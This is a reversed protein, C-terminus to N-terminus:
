HRCPMPYLTLALGRRVARIPDGVRCGTLTELPVAREGYAGDLTASVVIGRNFLITDEPSFGTITAQVDDGPRIQPAKYLAVRAVVSGIGLLAIPWLMGGRALQWRARQWLSPEVKM